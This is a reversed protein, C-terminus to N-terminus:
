SQRVSIPAIVIQIEDIADLPIPNADALGGNTGSSTLGYIDNSVIGDIQFTNYRSNAGAISIGGDKSVMAEPTLRAIDYISRSITPMKEIVSNNFNNTNMNHVPYYCMVAVAEISNASEKLSVNIEKTEGLELRINEYKADKYGVFSIEITYPGGVRIGNLRYLGNTDATTGYQTATPMHIAM